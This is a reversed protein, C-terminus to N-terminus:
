HVLRPLQYLELECEGLAVLEVKLAMQLLALVLELLLWISLM